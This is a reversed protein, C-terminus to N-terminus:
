ANTEGGFCPIPPPLLRAALGTTGSARLDCCADPFRNDTDILCTLVGAANGAGTDLPRDGIMVTERRDLAHQTLLYRISDPAPKHPFGDERTVGGDFLSALGHRRLVEWASMDNHTVLYNRGGAAKVAKLAEPIGPLVPPLEAREARLQHFRNLLTRAEVGLEAALTDAAHQLTVKMLAAVREAPLDQGFDRCIERLYGVMQPYSDVLTGDYDWLFNKLAPANLALREAIETDAPCLPYGLLERPKAWALATHETLTPETVARGAVFDFTIGQAETM